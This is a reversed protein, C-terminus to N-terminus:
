PAPVVETWGQPIGTPVPARFAEEREAERQIAEAESQAAEEATALKFLHLPPDWGEQVEELPISFGEGIVRSKTTPRFMLAAYAGEVRPAGPDGDLERLPVTTDTRAILHTINEGNM